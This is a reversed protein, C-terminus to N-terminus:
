TAGPNIYPLRDATAVIKDRNSLLIATSDWLGQTLAHRSSDNMALPFPQDDITIQQKLLDVTVQTKPAQEIRDMLRNVVEKTVTVVPLGMATCNGTFIESFSEGVFAHFGARMLSQPAHERSSGCGFNKNTVLIAAGQYRTDNFPHDKKQDGAFREDYFAYDGLGDFTVCRLYRAPIIRDTDIDDGRLPLARGQVIDRISTKDM